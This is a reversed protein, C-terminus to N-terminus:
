LNIIEGQITHARDTCDKKKKKENCRWAVYKEGIKRRQKIIFGNHIFIDRSRQSKIFRLSM